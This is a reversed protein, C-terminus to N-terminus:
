YTVTWEFTGTGNGTQFNLAVFYTGGGTIKAFKGSGSLIKETITLGTASTVSSSTTNIKNGDKDVYTALVEGSKGTVLDLTVNIVTTLTGLTSISGSFNQVVKATTPQGTSNFTLPMFSIQTLTMPGSVKQNEVTFQPEKKCATTFLITSLLVFLFLKPYM